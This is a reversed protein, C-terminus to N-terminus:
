DTQSSGSLQEILWQHYQALIAYTLGLNTNVVLNYQKQALATTDAMAKADTFRRMDYDLKEIDFTNLFEQFSPLMM